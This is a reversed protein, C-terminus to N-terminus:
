FFNRHIFIFYAVNCTAFFLHELKPTLMVDKLLTNCLICRVPLEGKIIPWRKCCPKWVIPVQERTSDLIGNWTEPRHIAVANRSTPSPITMTKGKLIENLLLESKRCLAINFGVAYLIKVFCSATRNKLIGILPALNHRTHPAKHIHLIVIAGHIRAVTFTYPMHEALEM